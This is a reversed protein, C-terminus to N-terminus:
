TVMVPAGPCLSKVLLAMAPGDRALHVTRVTATVALKSAAAGPVPPGTLQGQRVRPARFLSSNTDFHIGGLRAVALLFMLVDNLFVAAVALVSAAVRVAADMGIEPRFPSLTSPGLALM